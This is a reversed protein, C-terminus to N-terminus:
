TEAKDTRKQKRRQRRHFIRWETERMAKPQLGLGLDTSMSVEETPWKAAREKMTAGAMSVLAVASM